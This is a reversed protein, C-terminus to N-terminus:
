TSGRDQALPFTQLVEYRPRNRPGEGLHSAVLAFEEVLWAPGDYADLLRVWNSLEQPRRLRALTLHPRFRAGDVEIGTRTAAARAGTALHRLEQQAEPAHRLDAYLLKGRAANPFAGGGGVSLEFATRRGGARELREVLEDLRRDEVRPMFGLTVHWQESLTWRFDAAERRPDIFAELDEVVHEPPVVATFLRM